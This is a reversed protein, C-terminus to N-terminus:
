LSAHRRIFYKTFKTPLIGRYHPQPYDSPCFNENSCSILDTNESQRAHYIAGM